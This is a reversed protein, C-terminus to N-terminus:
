FQWQTYGDSLDNNTYPTDEISLLPIQSIPQYPNAAVSNLINKFQCVMRHPTEAKFRARDYNLSGLLRGQAHTLHLYFHIYFTYPFAEAYV